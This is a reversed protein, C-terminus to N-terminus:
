MVSDSHLKLYRRGAGGTEFLQFLERTKEVCSDSNHGEILHANPFCHRVAEGFATGRLMLLQAMPDKKAVGTLFCELWLKKPCQVYSQLKSKSLRYPM